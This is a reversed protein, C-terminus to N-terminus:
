PQAPSQFSLAYNVAEEGPDALTVSVQISTGPPFTDLDVVQLLDPSLYEEPPMLRRAIIEGDQDSISLGIDPFAQAFSADNHLTLTLQLAGEIASHNRLQLNESRLADLRQLASLDECPLGADCASELWPRLQPDQSFVYRNHWFYQVALTAILATVLLLSGTLRLLSVGRRGALTLALPESLQGLQRLNDVSFGARDQEAEGLPLNLAEARISDDDSNPTVDEPEDIIEWLSRQEGVLADLDHDEGPAGSATSATGASFVKLCAGCRLQGDAAQLQDTNARFRTDCHPCRVINENM